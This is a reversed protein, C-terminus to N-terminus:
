NNNQITIQKNNLKQETLSPFPKPQKTKTNQKTYIYPYKQTQIFKHKHPTNNTTKPINQTIQM